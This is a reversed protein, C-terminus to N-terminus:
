CASGHRTRGHRTRVTAEFARPGAHRGRTQPCNEGVVQLELSCAYTGASCGDAPSPGRNGHASAYGHQGRRGRRGGGYPGRASRRRLSRLSSGLRSVRSPPRRGGEGNDATEVRPSSGGAAAEGCPHATEPPPITSGCCDRIRLGSSNLRVIREPRRAPPAVRDAWRKSAAPGTGSSAPGFTPKTTLRATPEATTRLRTFRRSRSSIRPRTAESGPPQKSTNRACGAAAPTRWASRAASRSRARSRSSRRCTPARGRHACRLHARCLFGHRRQRCPEKDNGHDAVAAEDARDEGRDAAEVRRATLVGKLGQARVARYPPQPQGRTPQGTAM